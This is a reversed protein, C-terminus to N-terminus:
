AAMKLFDLKQPLRQLFPPMTEDLSSVISQSDRGKELGANDPNTREIAKALTDLTVFAYFGSHYFYKRTWADTPHLIISLRGSIFEYGQNEAAHSFTRICDDSLGHIRGHTVTYFLPMAPEEPDKHFEELYKWIHRVTKKMLTETDLHLNEVKLSILEGVRM